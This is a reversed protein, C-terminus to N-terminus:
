VPKNLIQGVIDWLKTEVAGVAAITVGVRRWLCPALYMKQWLREVQFKLLGELKAQAGSAKILSDIVLSPSETQGLGDIGSHTHVRVLSFGYKFPEKLAITEIGAIRHAHECASNETSL